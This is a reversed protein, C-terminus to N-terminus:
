RVEKAAEPELNLTTCLRLDLKMGAENELAHMTKPRPLGIFECYEFAILPPFKEEALVPDVRVLSRTAYTFECAQFILRGWVDRIDVVLEHRMFREFIGSVFQINSPAQRPGKWQQREVEPQDFYGVVIARGGPAWSAHAESKPESSDSVNCNLFTLTRSKNIIWFGVHSHEVFVDSALSNQAGDYLTAALKFGRLNIRSLWPKHAFPLAVGISAIADGEITLDALGSYHGSLRFTSIPATSKVITRERGEGVISTGVPLEVTDSVQYTGTPLYIAGGRQAAAKLLDTVDRGDGATGLDLVNRASAGESANVSLATAAMLDRRRM